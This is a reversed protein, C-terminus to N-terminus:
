DEFIVDEFKYITYKYGKAYALESIMGDNYYVTEEHTGWYTEDAYSIGNGWKKGLKHFAECLQKAKEETDCHICVTGEPMEFFEQLTIKEKPTDKKTPEETPEEAPTKETEGKTMIDLCHPIDFLETVLLTLVEAIVDRTKEAEKNLKPFNTKMVTAATSGAHEVFKEKSITIEYNRPTLLKKIEM